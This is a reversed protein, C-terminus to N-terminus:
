SQQPQQAKPVQGESTCGALATAAGLAGVGATAQKLFRRRGIAQDAM